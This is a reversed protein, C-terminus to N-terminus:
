PEAVLRRVVFIMGASLIGCWIAMIIAQEPFTVGWDIFVGTIGPGIATSVVMLATAMARVSGLHNTGYVSPLLTGWLTGAMGQTLGMIGLATIWGMPTVAPGILYIGVAMPLVLVPLLRAPGFRDCAWGTVISMGITVVAFVAYGPAMAALGWGKVEAVHVQHFFIVTGIFGPTLLMPVLAWFLWHRLVEGRRWHYGGLGPTDAGAESSSRPARDQALLWILLPVFVLAILVAVIGWSARWGLAGLILVAPLPLLM